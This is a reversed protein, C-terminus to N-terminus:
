IIAYIGFKINAQLMWSARRHTSVLEVLEMTATASAVDVLIDVYWKYCGYTDNCYKYCGCTDQCVVQLM